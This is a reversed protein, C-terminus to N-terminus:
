GDRRRVGAGLPRRRPCRCARRGCPRPLRRRRGVARDERTSSLYFGRDRLDRYVFFDVESVAASALFRRFDLREARDDVVADLDGRFLLHAAEVPALHVDGDVPRGYGRADYFQERGARGARVIDGDYTAEM